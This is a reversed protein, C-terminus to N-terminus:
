RRELVSGSCNSQWPSRRMEPQARCKSIGLGQAAPHASYILLREGKMSRKRPAREKMTKVAVSWACVAAEGVAEREGTETSSFVVTLETGM